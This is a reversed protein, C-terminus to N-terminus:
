AIGWGDFGGPMLARLRSVDDRVRDELERVVDEALTIERSRTSILSTHRDLAKKFSSPMKRTVSRYVPSSRLKHIVPRVSKKDLTSHVEFDYSSAAKSGDVGLFDLVTSVTQVRRHRLDESTVLLIQDRPFHKLYRDLQMAYRSHNVFAPDELLARGAPRDEDGNAVQHQYHSVMRRIPHRVLYVLKADPLHQAIREAVGEIEPYKTYDTSAEGRALASDSGEFLSEYWDWGLAWNGDAVFFQPEKVKAMFIDPHSGLYRYLSSTGAKMAGILLFNPLTVTRFSEDRQARWFQPM